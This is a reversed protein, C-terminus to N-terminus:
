VQYKRRKPELDLKVDVVSTSHRKMYKRMEETYMKDEDPIPSTQTEANEVPIVQQSTMELELHENDSNVTKTSFCNYLLSLVLLGSVILTSNCIELNNIYEM